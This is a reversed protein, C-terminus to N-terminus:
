RAGPAGRRRAWAKRQAVDRAPEEGGDAHEGRQALAVPAALALEYVHAHEVALDGDQLVGEHAVEGGALHRPGDARAVREGGGGGVRGGGAVGKWAKGVLSPQITSASAQPTSFWHSSKQARM